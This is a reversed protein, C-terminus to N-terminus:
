LDELSIPSTKKFLKLDHGTREKLVIISSKACHRCTAFVEFTHAWGFESSGVRNAASVSFTISKTRCRPCNWVLEAM